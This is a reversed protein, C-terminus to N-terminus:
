AWAEVMSAPVSYTQKVREFLMAPLGARELVKLAVTKENGNIALQAQQQIDPLALVDYMTKNEVHSAAHWALDFVLRTLEKSRLSWNGLVRYEMGWPQARFEGARGYYKRRNPASPDRDFVISACGVFIDMLKAMSAKDVITALNYHGIHIPFSGTRMGDDFDRKPNIDERYADFNPDCGIAWAEECELQERAFTHAAQAHVTLSSGLFEFISNFVKRFREVAEEPSHSPPASFEALVNDYYFAAGDPLRLPDNKNRKIIPIASVILDRSTDRIFVEPDYGITCRM